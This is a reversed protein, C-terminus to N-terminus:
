SRLNVGQWMCYTVTHTASFDAPRFARDQEGITILDGFLPGALVLGAPGTDYLIYIDPSKADGLLNGLSKPIGVPFKAGWSNPM